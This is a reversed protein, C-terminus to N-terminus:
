EARGEMRPGKARRRGNPRRTGEVRWNVREERKKRRVKLKMGWLSIRKRRGTRGRRKGIIAEMRRWIM